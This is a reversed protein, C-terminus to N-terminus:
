IKEYIDNIFKKIKFYDLIDWLNDKLINENFSKEVISIKNRNLNANNLTINKFQIEKKLVNVRGTSILSFDGEPLSLNFKRFFKKQNESAFNIFFKINQDRGQDILSLNFKVLSSAPLIASANQIKINGNEFIIKLNINEIRGLFSDTKKTNINIKGNIKKSLNINKSINQSPFSNFYLFLKRFNIQNVLFNLDFFFNDKFNINGNLKSNLFKNRFYSNNFTYIEDGNFNLMLINNLVKLKLNGKSSDLNSGEDFKIKLSTSLDSLELNFYKEEIKNNIFKIKFKNGSFFGKVSIKEGKNNKNNKLYFNKIPIKTNQNDHFFIQCNEFLIKNTKEEGFFKLYNKLDKPYIKIKQETARIKKIKFKELSGLKFFSIYVESEEILIPKSLDLNLEHKKIILKPMPLFKYTVKGNIKTRINLHNNVKNEVIGKKTDFSYFIPRLIYISLIALTFVACIIIINRKNTFKKLRNLNKKDLILQIIKIASTKM